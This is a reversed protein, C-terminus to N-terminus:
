CQITDTFYQLHVRQFPVNQKMLTISYVYLNLVQKLQGVVLLKTPRNRCVLGATCCGELLAACFGDSRCRQTIAGKVGMIM